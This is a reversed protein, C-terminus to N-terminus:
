SYRNNLQSCSRPSLDTNRKEVHATKAAKQNSFCSNKRNERKQRLIQPVKQMTVGYFHGALPIDKLDVNSTLLKKLFNTSFLERGM